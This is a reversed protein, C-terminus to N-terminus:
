LVLTGLQVLALELLVLTDLAVAHSLLARSAMVLLQGLVRLVNLVDESPDM